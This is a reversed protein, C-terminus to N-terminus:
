LLRLQGPDGPSTAPAAPAPEAAPGAGLAPGSGLAPASESAPDAAALPKLTAADNPREDAFAPCRDRYECWGCLGSKRAEFREEARIRDIMEATEERLQERQELSRESIRTQNPVVYHWVLRIDEEVGLEKRIGLEYLGLQRDRDLRNQHPVRRSTKFDHIELVGDRSRVLRDIIGRLAYRGEPDLEFQIRKELGLTTDADFPYHRRYYNELGRAGATRYFAADTDDRVIRIRAPDFMQEFNQHYRYAVRELSPVAGDAVFHYLRELVEHVRKGVFAEIGETDVPVKEVYRFWYQKPCNEFCSLSSPSFTSQVAAM